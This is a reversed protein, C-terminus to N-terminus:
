FLWAGELQLLKRKTEWGGEGSYNTVQGNAGLVRHCPVVLPVPNRAMAGGVARSAAPKGLRRALDGYTLTRGPPVARLAELAARQFPPATGLDVVVDSLDERGTRLHRAIRELVAAAGTSPAAPSAERTMRVAVLRGARLAVHVHLGLEPSFISGTELSADSPAAVLGRLGKPGRFTQDAPAPM